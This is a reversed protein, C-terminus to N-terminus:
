NWKRPDLWKDPILARWRSAIMGPDEVSILDLDLLEKLQKVSDVGVLFFDFRDSRDIFALSLQLLSLNNRRCDEMILSHFRKLEVPSKESLSQSALLGQLFVSRAYRKGTPLSNNEFRRDILNFPFQFALDFGCNRFGDLEDPEYVSIGLSGVPFQILLEQFLEPETFLLLSDKPDHFFLVEIKDIGLKELSATISSHVFDKWSKRGRLSPIKTLVHIESQIGEAKVFEGIISESKYGPATDISRIGTEWATRIIKLAETKTPVGGRNAIGYEMGLQASGLIM